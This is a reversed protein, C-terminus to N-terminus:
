YRYEKLKILKLRLNDSLYVCVLFLLLLFFTINRISVRMIRGLTRHYKNNGFLDDLPRFVNFNSCLSSVRTQYSTQM